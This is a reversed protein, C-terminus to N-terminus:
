LWAVVGTELLGAKSTRHVPSPTGMSSEHLFFDFLLFIRSKCFFYNRAKYTTQFHLPYPALYSLVKSEKSFFPFPYTLFDFDGM